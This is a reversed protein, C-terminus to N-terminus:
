QIQSMIKLCMNWWFCTEIHNGLTLFLMVFLMFNVHGVLVVVRGQRLNDPYGGKRGGM